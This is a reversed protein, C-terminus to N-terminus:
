RIAEVLGWGAGAVVLALGATLLGAAVRPRTTQGGTLIRMAEPLELTTLVLPRGLGATMVLRDGVATPVGLIVAHEVSSIQEIVARVPTEPPLDAPARNGLDSAVGASVRPVVVLGHELARPEVDISALGERVEFGVQERSDEFATWRGRRRAELRTRRYVLPRHEADEFEEASDLRGDVRVYRPRGADAIARAEEVTVRPTTSLLRGVRFRPGFTRLTFAGAALAGIGLALVLLPTM